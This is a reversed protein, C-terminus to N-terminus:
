NVSGEITRLLEGHRGNFQVHWPLDNCHVPNGSDLKRFIECANRMTVAVSVDVNRCLYLWHNPVLEHPIGTIDSFIQRLYCRFCGTALIPSTTTM